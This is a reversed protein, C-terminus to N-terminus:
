RWDLVCFVGKHDKVQQPLVLLKDRFVSLLLGAGFLVAGVVAIITAHTDLRDWPVYFLLALLYRSFLVTGMITTARIQFLWGIALLLVATGLFALENLLLFEGRSCDILVAVASPAGLLISALLLGFLGMDSEEEQERMWGVHAAGLLALGCVMSYVALKQWLTFTSVATM